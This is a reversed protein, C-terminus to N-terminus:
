VTYAMNGQIAPNPHIWGIQRANTGEFGTEERLERVGAEVPDKDLDDMVGGPIELTIERVGHRFQQVMILDRSPTLAIVNVWPHTELVFFDHLVSTRPSVAFDQRIKFIRYDHLYKCETREWPLIDPM